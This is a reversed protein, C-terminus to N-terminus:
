ERIDLWNYFLDPRPIYATKDAFVEIAEQSATSRERLAKLRKLYLNDFLARVSTKVVTQRALLQMNLEHVVDKAVNFEKITANSGIALSLKYLNDTISTDLRPMDRLFDFLMVQYENTAYENLREKQEDLSLTSEQDISAKIAEKDSETNIYLNNLSCTKFSKFSNNHNFDNNEGELGTTDVTEALNRETFRETFQETFQHESISFVVDMIQKFDPHKKDVFIYKGMGGTTKELRGVIFEDTMKLAKVTNTVTKVSVGCTEALKDAGVKSIGSASTIYVIHDLVGGQKNPFLKDMVINKEELSAALADLRQCKIKKSPRDTTFSLYFQVQQNTATLTKM